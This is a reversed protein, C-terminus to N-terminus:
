YPCGTTQFKNSAKPWSLVYSTTFRRGGVTCYFDSDAFEVHGDLFVVDGQGDNRRDLAVPIGHYTAIGDGRSGSPDMPHRAMFNTDNLVASAVIDGSGIPKEIPWTTEETWFLTESPNSVETIRLVGNVKQSPDTRPLGLFNNQSFAFQPVMPTACSHWRKQVDVFTPCLLVKQSNLYGWLPGANTPKDWPSLGKTHWQCTGTTIVGKAYLNEFSGTFKNDNEGVYALGAVGVSKLNSKCMLNKAAEKARKLSPMIISLLLAIIAIVVLLEILTFGKRKLMEIGKGM